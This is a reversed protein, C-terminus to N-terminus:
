LGYNNFAQNQKVQGASTSWNPTADDEPQVMGGGGGAGGGTMASSGFGAMMQGWHHIDDTAANAMNGLVATWGWPTAKVKAAMLDRQFKFQNEQFKLNVRQEIPLFASSMNFVPTRQATSDIWRMAADLGRNVMDLSTLGLNRLEDYSQFESGSTGMTIGREAAKRALLNEVDRPIEGGVMSAISGTAQDRLQTYGPMMKEMAATLQEASMENYRRALESVKPLNALNEAVSAATEAGIDVTQFKPVKLKDVLVSFVGAGAPM